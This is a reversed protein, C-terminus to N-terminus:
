KANSHVLIPNKTQATFRINSCSTQSAGAASGAGGSTGLVCRHRSATQLCCVAGEGVRREYVALLAASWTQVRANPIILPRHASTVAMAEWVSPRSGESRMKTSRRDLFSSTLCRAACSSCSRTERRELPLGDQGLPILPSGM